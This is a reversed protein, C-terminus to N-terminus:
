QLFPNLIRIGAVSQNHNIDESLLVTAGVQEAAAIILGDWFSLKVRESIEGARVIADVTILNLVWPEYDRVIERAESPRLPRPIKKILNVYMEQLVQTSLCGSRSEWLERMKEKAVRHKHGAATDLSYLIINTDVFIRDAMSLDSTCVRAIM